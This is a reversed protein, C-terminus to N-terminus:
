RGPPAPKRDGVRQTRSQSRIARRLEQLERNSLRRQRANQVCSQPMSLSRRLDDQVPPGPFQKGVEVPDACGAQAHAQSVGGLALLVGAAPLLARFGRLTRTGGIIAFIPHSSPRISFKM